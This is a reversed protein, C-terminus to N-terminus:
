KGDATLASFTARLVPLPQQQRSRSKLCVDSVEFCIAEGERDCDLWLVLLAAHASLARLMSALSGM